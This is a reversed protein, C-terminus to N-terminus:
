KTFKKSDPPWEWKTKVWSSMTTAKLTSGDSKRWALGQRLWSTLRKCSPKPRWSRLLTTLEKRNRNMSPRSSSVSVTRIIPIRPTIVMCSGLEKSLWISRRSGSSLLNLFNIWMWSSLTTWMGTSNDKSSLAKLFASTACPRPTPSMTNALRTLKMVFKLLPLVTVASSRLPISERANLNGIKCISTSLFTLPRPFSSKTWAISANPMQVMNVCANWWRRRVKTRLSQAIWANEEPGMTVSQSGKRNNQNRNETERRPKNELQWAISASGARLTIASRPFIARDLKPCLYQMDSVGIGHSEKKKLQPNKSSVKIIAGDRFYPIEALKKGEPISFM